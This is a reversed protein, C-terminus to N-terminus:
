GPDDLALRRALWAKTTSQVLLTVVVAVAVVTVIEAEHPVGEAVLVGAVAAPVVGTERTWGVFVVEERTWRGRRDAGLCALVTLPRAVLILAAVTALAPAWYDAIEDFPLNVGLTLFVLMVMLDAVIEVFSRMAREHASHMGLGFSEMNGVIFGAIFAGLYGSGGAVDITFYGASVVLLVAVASSERWIGSRQQSIVLALVIGSVIGLATSIGVDVVFERLPDALSGGGEVVFAAVAFALVAGTPDNLASEAVVTQAVKPRIRMREFLPILIAPDTPALVAGILLGSEMPLGFFLAAAAGTVFATILVGPVALLGLGVFVPRLVELSLGLGGHFLIMSVGLTLLIQVASSDLPVDVADAVEPGLLAGAALLVVMRPVRLVGAVLEAGLGAALLIALTQIVDQTSM